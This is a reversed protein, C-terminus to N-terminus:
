SWIAVGWWSVHNLGEFRDQFPRPDSGLRRASILAIATIDIDGVDVPAAANFWLRENAMASNIAEAYVDAM